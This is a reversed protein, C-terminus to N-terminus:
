PVCGPDHVASTYGGQLSSSGFHGATYNATIPCTFYATGSASSMSNNSIVGAAIGDVALNVVAGQASNYSVEGADVLTVSGWAHAGVAMGFSLLNQSAYITNGTTVSGAMTASTDSVPNGVGLGAFGYTGTNEISNNAITCYDGKFVVLGVDTNDLMYNDHVYGGDCRLLTMGDAWQMYSNTGNNASYISYIEFSDGRAELASGCMANITDIHHISYGSGGVILNSGHAGAYLGSDPSACKGTQTRSGKNGNLILESIEYNDPGDAVIMARSLDPHAILTAKGGVSTLLTNWDRLFIRTDIIYGPYGPVLYVANNNDLCSQIAASDSSSDSPNAGPCNQAEVRSLGLLMLSVSLVARGIGRYTTPKLM